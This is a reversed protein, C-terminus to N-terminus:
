LSILWMVMYLIWVVLGALASGYLTDWITDITEKKSTTWKM